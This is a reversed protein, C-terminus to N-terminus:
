QNFYEWFPLIGSGSSQMTLYYINSSPTIYDYRTSYGTANTIVYYQTQYDLNFTASGTSDVQKQAMTTWTSGILKQVTVTATTVTLSGSIIIFSTTIPYTDTLPLLYANLGYSGGYTLTAYYYRPSYFSTNSIAIMASGTPFTSNCYYETFYCNFGYSFTSAANTVILTFCIASSTSSENYTLISIVNLPCYHTYESMVESASLTRNWIKVEDITGNFMYQNIYGIQVNGTGSSVSSGTGTWYPVGNVYLIMSSGNFILALHTWTNLPLIIDGDGVNVGTTGNMVYLTSGYLWMGYQVAGKTVIGYTSIPYAETGTRRLWASLTYNGSPNLISSNGANVYSGSAFNLAYPTQYNKGTTWTPSNVLTGLNENGSSDLAFKGSNEDFKWYGVLGTAPQSNLTTYTINLQPRQAATGEKSGYTAGYGDASETNRRLLLSLLGGTNQSAQAANLVTWNSWGTGPPSISTQLTDATPQNNWTVTGEAWTATTTNWIELNTGGGPASVVYLYFQANTINIGSAPLVSSLNWLVLSRYQASVYGTRLITLSGYTTTGSSGNIFADGINGANSENLIILPDITLQKSAKTNRVLATKTDLMELSTKDTATDSFDYSVEKIEDGAIRFGFAEVKDANDLTVGYEFSGRQKIIVPEIKAETEKVAIEKGDVMAFLEIRATQGNYSLEFHDDLYEFNAVDEFPWYGSDTLVNVQGSYFTTTRSGDDNCYTDTTATRSCIYSQSSVLGMFLFLAIFLKTRM